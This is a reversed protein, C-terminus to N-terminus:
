VNEDVIFFGKRSFISVYQDVDPIIILTDSFVKGSKRIKLVHIMYPDEEDAQFVIKQSGDTMLIPIDKKM